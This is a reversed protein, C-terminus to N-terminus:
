PKRFGIRALSSEAAKKENWKKNGSKYIISSEHGKGLLLVTDDPEAKSVAFDIAKERDPIIYVSNKDFDESIGNKIEEIIKLSDEGRPDEDTLIIIDAFKGAIRGQISRKEIDREGASGFVVILRKLAKERIQPFLKEFAGPTHAYDVIVNFPQGMTVKDMRGNVPVIDCIYPTFNGIDLGTIKSAAATAALMNDINFIGPINMTAPYKKGQYNMEFVSTIGDSVVGSAYIDAEKRDSSYTTVEANSVKIFHDKYKENMNVICFDEAKRFLNAKDDVYKEITGHFELHEHSINTLVGGRFKIDQLRATKSSLGHSTSELVAYEFRNEVMLSLIKMIEPSEPTSQRYPNKEITGSSDFEVTSIFGTRFGLRKLLQYIFSVTSSKGDTGTVGIVKLKESPFGYFASSFSSMAKRTDPTFLYTVGDIYEAPEKQLFVASAGNKVADEIYSHGDTHIGDLAFFAFDKGASRSDYAIGSVVKDANGKIGTINCYETLGSLRKMVTEITATYRSDM